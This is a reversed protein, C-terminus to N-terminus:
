PQDALRYLHVDYGGFDDEWKGDTATIKRDEGLVTVSATGKIGAVSFNGHTQGDRM